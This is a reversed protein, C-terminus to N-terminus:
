EKYIRLNVILLGVKRDEAELDDDIPYTSAEIEITDYGSLQVCSDTNLDDLLSQMSNYVTKYDRNKYRVEIQHLEVFESTQAKLTKNGGSTSVLWYSDPAKNSSPAQGIFLDQGLTSSTLTSLYTAFSEAINM